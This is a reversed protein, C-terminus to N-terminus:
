RGQHGKTETLKGCHEQLFVEVSDVIRALTGASGSAAKPSSPCAVRGGESHEQLFVEDTRPASDGIASRKMPIPNAFGVDHEQPFLEENICELVSKQGRCCALFHEQLFM